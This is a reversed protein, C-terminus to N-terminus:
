RPPVVPGLDAIEALLFAEAVALRQLDGLHVSENEGHIASTPDAPGLLLAPIGGFAEAFPGVFPISGGVGMHVVDTGFAARLARDAADFAPGVPECAWAPAADAPVFDVSLGWPTHTRLHEALLQNARAPDQGPALRVSLRASAQAVIQNSSGEIPHSDFGTVTIAPRTWLREYLTADPDGTLEVGPLLGFDHRWRQEDTPLARLRAREGGTLPRVDDAFGAIAVDGHEDTLTALLRALAMAPDPAAGGALGSHAPGALARLTVDGGALGRLSCTLAPVGEAWNGADALVLVDAALETLHEDLFTALHPSGIEEEGEVLVKVNCPLEDEVELWAAVAAAHAIVGAKDDASGRGFLRDGRRVPEFPDTRWRDVVGPPQVDHHAYLLVTPRDPRNTREGIVAPWTGDVTVVRVQELGSATLVDAVADASRALDAARGADASISPIRVLDGLVDLWRAFSAEVAAELGAGVEVV